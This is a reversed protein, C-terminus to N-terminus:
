WGFWWLVREDDLSLWNKRIMFFAGGVIVTGAVVTLAMLWSRLIVILFEDHHAGLIMGVAIFLLITLVRRVGQHWKKFEEKNM